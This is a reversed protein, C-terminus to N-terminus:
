MCQAGVCQCVSWLKSLPCFLVPCFPLLKQFCPPAFGFGLEHWGQLWACPTLRRRRSDLTQGSGDGGLCRGAPTHASPQERHRRDRRCGPQHEGLGAFPGQSPVPTDSVAQASLLPPPGPFLQDCVGPCPRSELTVEREELKRLWKHCRARFNSDLLLAARWPCQFQFLRLQSVAM